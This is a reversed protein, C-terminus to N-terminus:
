EMLEVLVANQCDMGKDTLKWSANEHKVFGLKEQQRLKAGYCDELSIGHLRYFHEESVGSVMRLGLMMTEFRAEAASVNEQERLASDRNEVLAKYSALDRPNTFRMCSFPSTGAPLMSAASCGIGLYPTHNWYGINHQCAYGPKSFNSIEYQVFGAQRLKMKALDYMSREINEDPLTVAGSRIRDYMVTGEEPILGYASIHEPDFTLACSLTNKWSEPTQGPFGFMLDLNLNVIGSDHVLRVAKETQTQSHIRGLTKLESDVSSQMGLSIRNVGTSIVADLWQSSISDPNGEATFEKVKSLDLISSLGEFLRKWEHPPILSPTGGGVYISTFSACSVAESMWSAESILLSIYDSIFCSANAYSAFDCYHCKKVCFPIHIYLECDTM